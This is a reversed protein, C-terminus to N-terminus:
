MYYILPSLDFQCRVDNWRHACWRRIQYDGPYQVIKLYKRTHPSVVNLRWGANAYQKCTGHHICKYLCEGVHRLLILNNLYSLNLRVRRTITIFVVSAWSQWFFAIASTQQMNIMRLVWAFYIIPISTKTKLFLIDKYICYKQLFVESRLPARAPILRNTLLSKFTGAAQWVDYSQFRVIYIKFLCRGTGTRHTCVGAPSRGPM